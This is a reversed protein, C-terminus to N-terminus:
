LPTLADALRSDLAFHLHAFRGSVVIAQACGFLAESRQPFLWPFAACGHLSAIAVPTALREVRLEAAQVLRFIGALPFTGRPAGARARELNDFPLALVQHGGACPLVVGFDDGLSIAPAALRTATTKGSRSPGALLYAHGEHLLGAAHLACGGRALALDATLLRCINEIRRALPEDDQVTLLARWCRPDSECALAFSQAALVCDGGADLAELPYPTGPPPVPLLAGGDDVFLRVRREEPLKSTSTLFEGWREHLTEALGHSLGEIGVSWEGLRLTRCESGLTARASWLRQRVAQEM